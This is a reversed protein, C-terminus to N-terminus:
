QIHLLVFRKHNLHQLHVANAPVVSLVDLVKQGSLDIVSAGQVTIYKKDTIYPKIKTFASKVISAFQDDSLEIRVTPAGLMLKIDNVVDTTAM